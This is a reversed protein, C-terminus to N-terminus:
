AALAPIRTVVHDEVEGTAGNEVRQGGVAHGSGAIHPFFVLIGNQELELCVIETAKFYQVVTCPSLPPPSTRCLSPNSPILFVTRTPMWLAVLLDQLM